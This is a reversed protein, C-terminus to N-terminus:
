DKKVSCNLLVLSGIQFNEKGNYLGEIKVSDGKNLELLSDEADANFHCEIYRFPNTIVAEGFLSLTYDSGKAEIKGVFGEVLIRKGKYNKDFRMQNKDVESVLSKASHIDTNDAFSISAFIM